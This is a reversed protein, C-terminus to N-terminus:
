TKIPQICKPTTDMNGIAFSCRSIDTFVEVISWKSIIEQYLTKKM